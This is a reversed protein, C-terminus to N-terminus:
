CIGSGSHLTLRCRESCVAGTSPIYDFRDDTADFVYHDFM